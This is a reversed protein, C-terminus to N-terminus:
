HCNLLKSFIRFIAATSHGRESGFPSLVMTVYVAEKYVSSRTVIQDNTTAKVKRSRCM